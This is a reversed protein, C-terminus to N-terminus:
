GSQEASGPEQQKEEPKVVEFLMTGLATPGQSRTITYRDPLRPLEVSFVAMKEDTITRSREQLGGGILWGDRSVYNESIISGARKIEEETLGSRRRVFLKVFVQTNTRRLSDQFVSLFDDVNLFYKPDQEQKERATLMQKFVDATFVSVRGHVEKESEKETDKVSATYVPEEVQSWDIPIRISKSVTIANEKGVLVMELMPNEGWVVQNPFRLSALALKRQV